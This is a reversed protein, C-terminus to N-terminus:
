LGAQRSGGQDRFLRVGALLRHRRAAGSCRRHCQSRGGPHPPLGVPILRYIQDVESRWWAQVTPDMPDATKLHGVEVPGSFRVSLYVRVGYPRFATALAAVKTLYEPSLIKPDANVNNLVAGNIGISADARAYDIYRRDINPLTAWDWLSPGAYGREITRDLNDWHDLVRLAYKPGERLNLAGVKQGTQVLRLYAFAGYLLGIDQRASIITVRHGGIHQSRIAYADGGAAGATRALVIAGDRESSVPVERIPIAQGLLPSLGRQLEDCAARQTATSCDGDIETAHSRYYTLASAPLPKYRLWLDYGDEGHAGGCVSMVLAFFLAVARM